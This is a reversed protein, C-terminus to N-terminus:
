RGRTTLHQVQWRLAVGPRAEAGQRGPAGGGAGGTDLLAAGISFPLAACRHSRGARNRPLPRLEEPCSESPRPRRAQLTPCPM